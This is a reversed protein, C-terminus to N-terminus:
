QVKLAKFRSTHASFYGLANNSINSIPNFPTVNGSGSAQRFTSFYEYTGYDICQMEVKVSDGVDLSTDSRLTYGIYHGNTYKDDIVNSNWILATDNRTEIFKYYHTSGAPDLFIVEPQLTTDNNGGRRIRVQQSIILTDFNVVQPMTSSSNYTQGNAIVKLNYTRGAFGMIRKTHYTGPTIEVLTDTNGANDAITIFAGNVPPFVNPDSFNVTQSLTVTYPGPQDNVNGVIVIAPSASNLNINIVKQCSIALLWYSIALLWFVNHVKCVKHVTKM